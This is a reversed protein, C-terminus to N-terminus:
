ALSLVSGTPRWVRKVAALRLLYRQFDKGAPAGQGRRMHVDTIRTVAFRCAAFALEAGFGDCEDATPPREACYADLLARTVEPRFDDYGFGFALVTVAVDYALRGWSAQEFDLLATLRGDEAFLVNDIFLDGHILGLPLHPSRVGALRSLESDLIQQAQALTVDSSAKIEALRRAIEDPEYRGPRHDGFDAGAKHLQALATGAHSAQTVGVEDRKLTKGPVWPFVSIWADGLNTYRRGGPGALPLPTPVGRAALHAVIAGERAVDEEGKGENVRLFLPGQATRVRLNTNITGAAIPDHGEYGGVNFASLVQIVDQASLTRFIGM